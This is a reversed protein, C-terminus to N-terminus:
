NMKITGSEGLYPMAVAFPQHADYKRMPRGGGLGLGGGLTTSFLTAAFISLDTFKMNRHSTTVM